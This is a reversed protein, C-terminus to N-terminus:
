AEESVSCEARKWGSCADGTGGYGSDGIGRNVPFREASNGNGETFSKRAKWFSCSLRSSESPPITKSNMIRQRAAQLLIGTRSMVFMVIGALILILAMDRISRLDREYHKGANIDRGLMDWTQRLRQLIGKGENVTMGGKLTM